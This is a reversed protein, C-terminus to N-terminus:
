AAKKSTGEILRRAKEVLSEPAETKIEVKRPKMAEPIERVLDVSLLGNDLNASAVKVHDALQFKRVFDRGAIGRHLYAPRGGNGNEGKKQGAITLTNERVEISLEDQKFGAVAVTIRYANEDTAEINYPPYAPGPQDTQMAAEVLRALRDFGVTSRFLPSFDYTTM